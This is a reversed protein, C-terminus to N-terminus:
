HITSTPVGYFELFVLLLWINDFHFKLAFFEIFNLFQPLFSDYCFHQYSLDKKLSNDKRIADLSLYYSFAFAFRPCKKEISNYM